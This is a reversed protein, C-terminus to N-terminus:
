WAEERAVRDGVGLQTAVHAADSPHQDRLSGSLMTGLGILIMAVFISYCANTLLSAKWDALKIMSVFACQISACLWPVADSTNEVREIVGRISVPTDKDAPLRARLAGLIGWASFILFPLCWWISIQREKLVLFAASISIIGIGFIWEAKKDLASLGEKIDEYKQRAYILAISYDKNPIPKYEDLYWRDNKRVEIFDEAFFGHRFPSRIFQWLLQFYNQM